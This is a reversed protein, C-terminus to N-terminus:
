DTRRLYQELNNRHMSYAEGSQKNEETSLFKMAKEEDTSPWPLSLFTCQSTANRATSEQEYSTFYYSLNIIFKAKMNNLTSSHAILDRRAENNFLWTQVIDPDQKADIPPKRGLRRLFAKVFIRFLSAKPYIFAISSEHPIKEFFREFKQLLSRNQHIEVEYVGQAYDYGYLVFYDRSVPNAIVNKPVNKQFIQNWKNAQIGIERM